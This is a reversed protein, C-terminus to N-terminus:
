LVMRSYFSNEVIEMGSETEEKPCVNLEMKLEVRPDSYNGNNKWTVEAVKGKGNAVMKPVPVATTSPVAPKPTAAPTPSAPAPSAPPTPPAPAAPPTPPAAPAAPAPPPTAAPAPALATRPVASEPPRPKPEPERAAGKGWIESLRCAKLKWSNGNPTNNQVSKEGGLAGLHHSFDGLVDEVFSVSGWCSIWWRQPFIPAELGNLGPDERIDWFFIEATKPMNTRTHELTQFFFLWFTKCMRLDLYLISYVKAFRRSQIGKFGWPGGLSGKATLTVGCEGAVVFTVCHWELQLMRSRPCALLEWTPGLPTGFPIGCSTTPKAQPNM